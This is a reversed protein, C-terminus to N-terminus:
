PSTIQVNDIYFNGGILADVTDYVFIIQITQGAWSTISLSQNQWNHEPTWLM